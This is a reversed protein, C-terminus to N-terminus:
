ESIRLFNMVGENWESDVLIVGLIKRMEWVLLSNEILGSLLRKKVIPIIEDEEVCEISKQLTFLIEETFISYHYKWLNAKTELTFREYVSNWNHLLSSVFDKYLGKGNKAIGETLRLFLPNAVLPVCRESILALNQRDTINSLIGEVGHHMLPTFPQDNNRENKTPYLTKTLESVRERVWKQARQVMANLKDNSPIGSPIPKMYELICSILLKSVNEDVLLVPFESLKQLLPVLGKIRLINVINISHLHASLTSLFSIVSSSSVSCHDDNHQNNSEWRALKANLESIEKDM